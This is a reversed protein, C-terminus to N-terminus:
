LKFWSNGATIVQSHDIEIVSQKLQKTMHEEEWISEPGKTIKPSFNVWM